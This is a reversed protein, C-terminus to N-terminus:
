NASFVESNSHGATQRDPRGAPTTRCHTPLLYSTESGNNLSLPWCLSPLRSLAYLVSGSQRVKPLAPCELGTTNQTRRDVAHHNKVARM